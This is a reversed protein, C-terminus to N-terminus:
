GTIALRAGGLAALRAEIRALDLAGADDRAGPIARGLVTLVVEEDVRLEADALDDRERGVAEDDAEELVALGALEDVRARSRGIRRSILASCGSGRFIALAISTSRSSPTM